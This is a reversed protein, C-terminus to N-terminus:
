GTVLNDHVLTPVAVVLEERRVGFDELHRRGFEPREQQAVHELLVRHRVPEVEALGDGAALDGVAEHLGPRPQYRSPKM